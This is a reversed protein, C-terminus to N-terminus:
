YWHDATIFCVMIQKGNNIHSCCKVLNLLRNHCILFSQKEINRWVLLKNVVDAKSADEGVPQPVQESIGKSKDILNVLDLLAKQNKLMVDLTCLKM